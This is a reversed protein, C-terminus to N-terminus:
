IEERPKIRVVKDANECYRSAEEIETAVYSLYPRGYFDKRGLVCTHCAEITNSVLDKGRVFVPIALPDVQAACSFVYDSERSLIDRNHTRGSHNDFGIVHLFEHFTITNASAEESSPLKVLGRLSLMKGYVGLSVKFHRFWFYSLDKKTAAMGGAREDDCSFVFSDLSRMRSLHWSLLQSNLRRLRNLREFLLKQLQFRFNASVVEPDGRVQSCEFKWSVTASQFREFDLLDSISFAHALNSGLFFLSFFLILKM